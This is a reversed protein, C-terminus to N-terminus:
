RYVFDIPSRTVLFGFWRRPFMSTLKPIKRRPNHFIDNDADEVNSKRKLEAAKASVIAPPKRGSEAKPESDDSANTTDLLMAKEPASTDNESSMFKVLNQPLVSVSPFTSRKYDTVMNRSAANEVIKCWFDDRKLSECNGLIMLSNRARTLAVNMRRIDRLFGVGTGFNARVCSLIIIAKEQGQFGDVTNIDISNLVKRGYKESFKDKLKIMQMRYPTIIGIKGSFSIQPHSSCISTVLDFCANIEDTNYYSRSVGQQEKGNVNFFRYPGYLSNSHWSSACIQELGPADMLKMDYFLSSPLSSIEPHMRYQISLLHVPQSKYTMLRQFLSRDYLLEQAKQSIVTPPLQNPDGVLVCKKAGYRLPILSSLEISQCAEDIIVVPFEVGELTTITDHGAASLTCLVVDAKLLIKTRVSRKSEELVRGSEKFKAQEEQLKKILVTRQENIERIKMEIDSIKELNLRTAAFNGEEDQCAEGKEAENRSNKLNDRQETLSQIESRLQRVRKDSESTQAQRNTYDSAVLLQEEVLADLTIDRVDSHIADSSGIRVINPLYSMGKWDQTGQRLRRVIEDCAANSPACVLLRRNSAAKSTNTAPPLPAGPMRIKTSGLGHTLISGILGLITKTKGTGPPGQILVFGAKQNVAATIAKAQPENVKFRRMVDQVVKMDCDYPTMMSPNLINQCLPYLPLNVLTLYERYSTTISFVKLANWQSDPKLSPVIETARGELLARVVMTTQNRYTRVSSVKALLSVSGMVGDNSIHCVDNEAFGQLKSDQVSIGFHIDCFADVMDAQTLSLVITDSDSAREKSQVFQQWCELFLLREMVDAYHAPSEFMDPIAQLDEKKITPPLQSSESVNNYDWALIEKYFNDIKRVTQRMESVSQKLQGGNTENKKLLRHTQVGPLDIRQVTRKPLHAPRAVTMEQLSQRAADAVISEFMGKQSSEEEDDSNVMIETTKATTAREPFLSGLRRGTPNTLQIEKKVIPGIRLKSEERVEARMQDLLSKKGVNKKKKISDPLRRPPLKITPQSKPAISFQVKPQTESGISTQHQELLPQPADFSDLNMMDATIVDDDYVHSYDMDDSEDESIYGSNFQSIATELDSKQLESLCSSKKGCCMNGIDDLSNPPCGIQSKRAIRLLKVVLEVAQQRLDDDACKFWMGTAVILAFFRFSDESKLVEKSPDLSEDRWLVLVDAAIYFSQAALGITEHVNEHNRGIKVMSSIFSSLLAPTREKVIARVEQTYWQLTDNDFNTLVVTILDFLIQIICQAKTFPLIPTCLYTLSLLMPSLVTCFHDPQTQYLQAICTGISKTGTASLLLAQVKDVIDSQGSLLLVLFNLFLRSDIPVVNKELIVSSGVFLQRLCSNCGNFLLGNATSDAIRQMYLFDFPAIKIYCQLWAEVLPQLNGANDMPLGELCTVVVQLVQSVIQMGDSNVPTWNSLALGRDEHYVSMLADGLETLIKCMQEIYDASITANVGGSGFEAIFKLCFVISQRSPSANGEKIWSASELSPVISTGVYKRVTSTWLGLKEVIARFCEEWLDSMVPPGLALMAQVFSFCRTLQKQVTSQQEPSADDALTVGMLFENFPKANFMSLIADRSYEPHRLMTRNARNFFQMWCRLAEWFEDGGTSLSKLIVKPVGFTVVLQDGVGAEVKDLFYKFGNWLDVPNPSLNYRGSPEVPCGDIMSLIHGLVERLTDTMNYLSTETVMAEFKKMSGRAWTSIQSDAHHLLLVAGPLIDKALRVSWLKQSTIM